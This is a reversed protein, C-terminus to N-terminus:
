GHSQVKRKKFTTGQNETWVKAREILVDAFQHRGELDPFHGCDFMEMLEAHPVSALLSRPDTLRHSRDLSGWVLLCPTRVVNPAIRKEKLLGQVVGALSFCAGCHLASRAVSQFPAADTGAPLAARYWGIAAKERFLWGLVQGAVPLRLAKPVIRDTWAHMAGLSPTQSLVLGAVRAPVLAAVHLAYFGNACSFALTAKDVGFNDLVALVAASGQELSHSYQATPVSFGFGPMDFCIVRCSSSLRAVLAECHEIVNPGDPTILIVPGVGGSDTCRIRGALTDVFVSRLAQCRETQRGSRLTFALGALWHDTLSSLMRLTKLPSYKRAQAM